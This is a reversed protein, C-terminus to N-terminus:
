GGQTRRSRQVTRTTTRSRAIFTNGSPTPSSRFEEFQEPTVNAYHYVNGGQFQVALTNTDPDHGVAAVLSSKVPAMPINSRSENAM